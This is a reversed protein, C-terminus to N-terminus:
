SQCGRAVDVFRRYGNIRNQKPKFITSKNAQQAPDILGYWSKETINKSLMRDLGLDFVGVAAGLVFPQKPWLGLNAGPVFSTLVGGIAGDIGSGLAQGLVNPAGQYDMKVTVPLWFSRVDTSDFQRVTGSSDRTVLDQGSVGIIDMGPLFGKEHLADNTQALDQRWMAPRDAHADALSRAVDSLDNDTSQHQRIQDAITDGTHATIM